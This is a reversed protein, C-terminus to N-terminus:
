FSYVKVVDIQKFTKFNQLLIQFKIAMRIESKFDNVNQGQDQYNIDVDALRRFDYMIPFINQFHITKVVNQAEEDGKILQILEEM